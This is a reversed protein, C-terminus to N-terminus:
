LATNEVVLLPKQSTKEGKQIKALQRSKGRRCKENVELPRRLQSVFDHVVQSEFAAAVREAQSRGKTQSWETTTAM